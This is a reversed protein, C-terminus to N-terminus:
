AFVHLPLSMRVIRTAPPALAVGAQVKGGDISYSACTGMRATASHAVGSRPAGALLVCVSGEVISSHLQSLPPNPLWRVRTRAREPSDPSDSRAEASRRHSEAASGHACDSGKSRQRVAPAVGEDRPASV